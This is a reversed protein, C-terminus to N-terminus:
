FIFYGGVSFGNIAGSSASRLTPTLFSFVSIEIGWKGKKKKEKEWALGLEIGGQFPAFFESKESDFNQEESVFVLITDGLNNVVEKGRMDWINGTAVEYFNYQAMVGGFLAMSNGGKEWFFHQLSARLKLSTLSLDM